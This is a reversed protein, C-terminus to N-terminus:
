RRRRSRGPEPSRSPRAASSTSSASARAFAERSVRIFEEYGGQFWTAMMRGDDHWVSRFREWDGADRWVAWDQVLRRIASEDSSSV